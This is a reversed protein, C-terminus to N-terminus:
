AGVLCVSFTILQPAGPFGYLDEDHYGCLESLNLPPICSPVM